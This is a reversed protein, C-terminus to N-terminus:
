PKDGGELKPLSVASGEDLLQQGLTVVQGVLGEGTVQTRDDHRVGPKVPRWAVSKGDGALVFV